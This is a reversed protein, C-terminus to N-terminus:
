YTMAYYLYEIFNVSTNSKSLTKFWPFTGHKHPAYFAKKPIRYEKQNVSDFPAQAIFFQDDVEISENWLEWFVPFTTLPFSPALLFCSSFNNQKIHTNQPYGFYPILEEKL